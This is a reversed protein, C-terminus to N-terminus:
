CEQHGRRQVLVQVGTHVFPPLKTLVVCGVPVIVPRLSISKWFVSCNRSGWKISLFSLGLSLCQSALCQVALGKAM